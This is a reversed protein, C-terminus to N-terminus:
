TCLVARMPRLLASLAASVGVSAAEQGISLHIFGPVEGDSSTASANASSAASAPLAGAHAAMLPLHPCLLFLVLAATDGDSTAVFTEMPTVLTGSGAILIEGSPNCGSM